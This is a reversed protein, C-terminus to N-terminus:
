PHPQDPPKEQTPPSSKKTVGGSLRALSQQYVDLAWVPDADVRFQAVTSERGSSNREDARYVRMEVTWTM